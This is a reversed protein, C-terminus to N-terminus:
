EDFKVLPANISNQVTTTTMWDYMCRLQSNKPNDRGPTRIKIENEEALKRDVELAILIGNAELKEDIETGVYDPLEIALGICIDTRVPVHYVACTVKPSLPNFQGLSVPGDTSDTPPVKTLTTLLMKLVIPKKNLRPADPMSLANALFLNPASHLTM